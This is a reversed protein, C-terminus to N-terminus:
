RAAEAEAGSAAPATTSTVAWQHVTGRHVAAYIRDRLVNADHDTLTRELDRLVVRVLLNDQDPRAGLRDLAAPPLRTGPTRALVEVAEVRAADPGLADRVRDGLDEALDGPDVTVSLDRRVAPMASVPHYPTLDTMQGAIRPDPTRLLRIDPIGKVLMLLRDLGLGLALGSSSAPLGARALVDPHALGGEAVEIWEADPALRADVQQGHLTYPHVRPDLRHAAGPLLAALVTAVMERLDADGTPASTIRWLDLQHPTGTHLRDIADRRYVVGPCVLLVDSAPDAALARLAGPILASSHSRLMHGDDVYRTYRADRTVDAPDYGLLDYNDAVPVIREGRHWRVECGWHAALASVIRDLVLQVAHAGQDPDTLDRVALDRALQEPSLPAASAHAGTSQSM